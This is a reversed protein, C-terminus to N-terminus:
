PWRPVARDRSDSGLRAANFCSICRRSRCSQLAPQRGRRRVLLLRQHGSRDPRARRIAELAAPVRIRQAIALGRFSVTKGVRGAPDVVIRRGTSTEPPRAGVAAASAAAIDISRPGAVRGDVVRTLSEAEYRAIADEDGIM